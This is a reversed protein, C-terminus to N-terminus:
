IMREEPWESHSASQKLSSPLKSDIEGTITQLYDQLPELKEYLVVILDGTEAARIAAKLAEM